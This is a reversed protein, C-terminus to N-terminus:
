PKTAESPNFIEKFTVMKKIQQLEKSTFERKVCTFSEVLVGLKLLKGRIDEMTFLQDTELKIEFWSGRDSYSGHGPDYPLIEIKRPM